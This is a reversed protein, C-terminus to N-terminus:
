SSSILDWGESLDKLEPNKEQILAIKKQRNWGKLKKEREIATRISEHEEFYVLQDVSYRATFGDSLKHRHEYLRRALDNTVGIYLTKSKNSLIYVWYM